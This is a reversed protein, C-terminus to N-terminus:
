SVRLCMTVTQQARSWIPTSRTPVIVTCLSPPNHSWGVRGAGVGRGTRRARAKALKVALAAKQQSQKGDLKARQTDKANKMSAASRDFEKRGAEVEVEPRASLARRTMWRM